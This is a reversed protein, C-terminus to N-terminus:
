RGEVSTVGAGLDVDDVTDLRLLDQTLPTCSSLAALALDNAPPLEELFVFAAGAIVQPLV